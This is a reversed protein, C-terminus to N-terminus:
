RKRQKARINTVIPGTDGNMTRVIYVDEMLMKRLQGLNKPKEEYLSIYLDKAQLFLKYAMDVKTPDDEKYRVDPSIRIFLTPEYEMGNAQKAKPKGWFSLSTRGEPDIDGPQSDGARVRKEFKWPEEKDWDGAPPNIKAREAEDRKDNFGLSDLDDSSLSGSVSPSSASGNSGQVKTEDFEDGEPLDPLEPIDTDIDEVKTTRTAM